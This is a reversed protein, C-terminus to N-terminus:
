LRAQDRENFNTNGASNVIIDVEDMIENALETDIGLNAELINGVIPVLENHLRKLAAETDKAKIM